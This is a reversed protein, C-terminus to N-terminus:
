DVLNGQDDFVGPKAPPMAFLDMRKAPPMSVPADPRLAMAMRKATVPGAQVFEAAFGACAILEVYSRRFDPTEAIRALKVALKIMAIEYPTIPKNLILSALASAVEYNKAPAGYDIMHDAISHKAEDIVEVCPPDQPQGPIKPHANNM